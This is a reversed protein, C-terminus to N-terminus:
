RAPPSIGSPLSYDKPIPPTQSAPAVGALRDCYAAAGDMDAFSQSTLENANSGDPSLKRLWVSPASVVGHRVRNTIRGSRKMPYVIRSPAYRRELHRAVKTCLTGGAFPMDGGRVRVARGNEVKIDLACTDPCDRSCAAKVIRRSPPTTDM